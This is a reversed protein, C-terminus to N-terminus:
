SLEEQHKKFEQIIRESLNPHEQLMKKFGKNNIVFVVTDELARVTATRPIELMLSLEGFFQGAQLTSLSKNLKIPSLCFYLIFTL